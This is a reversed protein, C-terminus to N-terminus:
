FIFFSLLRDHPNPTTNKDPIIQKMKDIFLEEKLWIPNPPNNLITRGIREVRIETIM